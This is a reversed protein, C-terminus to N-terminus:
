SSVRIRKKNGGPYQNGIPLQRASRNFGCLMDFEAKLPINAPAWYVWLNCNLLKVIQGGHHSGVQGCQQRRFEAVRKRISRDSKGVYVIPECPLWRGREYELDIEIGPPVSVPLECPNCDEAPNCVRAVVYVGPMTEPPDETNSEGFPLPGAPDLHAIQFIEAVTM